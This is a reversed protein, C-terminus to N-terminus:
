PAHGFGAIFSQKELLKGYEMIYDEIRERSRDPCTHYLYIELDRWKQIIDSNDDQVANWAEYIKELEKM